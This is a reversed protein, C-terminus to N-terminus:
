RLYSQNISYLRGLQVQEQSRQNVHTQDASLPFVFPFKPYQYKEALYMLHLLHDCRGAAGHVRAIDLFFEGAFARDEDRWGEGSIVLGLRGCLIM